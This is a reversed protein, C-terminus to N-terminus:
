KREVITEPATTFKEVMKLMAEAKKDDVPKHDKHCKSGGACKGTFANPGCKKGLAWYLAKNEVGCFKMIATFSPNEGKAIAPEMVKQLMPHMQNPNDRQENNDWKPKKKELQEKYDGANRKEGSKQPTILTTAYLDVPVEAHTITALKAMLCTHMNTFEALLSTEGMAFHRSQLLLIWLISAKTTLTMAQRAARSFEKLAKIVWMVCEFYPCTDTFLAFLLNAFRQLLLMFEDSQEPIKPKLSKKQKLIDQLTIHTARDIADTNNNLQAVEDETLDIMLFPSLGESANVLSPRKYNGDKGLWNRKSIMKLLETTLPVEADEFITNAMIHKRILTLKYQDTMGKAACNKIWEPLLTPSATTTLGCMVLTAEAEQQSLGYTTQINFLQDDEKKEEGAHPRNNALLATTTQQNQLMQMILQTIAPDLGTQPTMAIATTQTHTPTTLAPFLRQFVERGWRRSDATQPAMLVTQTTFPKNDTAGHANLCARLFEKLHTFMPTQTSDAALVREYVEAADLDKGIGDLVLFAPIPAIQMIPKTEQVHTRALLPHQYTAGKSTIKESFQQHTMTNIQNIDCLNGPLALTNPYGLDKGGDGTFMLMKGDITSSHGIGSAGM